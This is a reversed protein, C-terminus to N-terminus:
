NVKLNESPPNLEPSEEIPGFRSEYKEINERLAAAIRKAHGPSVIVRATLVGEPPFFNIFDLLFEEKTHTILMQNAYVGKLLKDPVKVKIEQQSM